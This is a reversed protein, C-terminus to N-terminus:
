EPVESGMQWEVITSSYNESWSDVKGHYAYYDYSKLLSRYTLDENYDRGPNLKELRYMGEKVFSELGEDEFFPPIHYERRIEEVLEEMGALNM